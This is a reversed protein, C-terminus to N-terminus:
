VALVEEAQRDPGWGARALGGQPGGLGGERGARGSVRVRGGARRASAGEPVRLRAAVAGQAGATVRRAMGMATDKRHMGLWEDGRRRGAWARPASKKWTPRPSGSSPPRPCVGRLPDLIPRAEVATRTRRARAHRHRREHRPPGGALNHWGLPQWRGNGCKEDHGVTSLPLSQLNSSDGGAEARSVRHDYVSGASVGSGAGTNGTATGSPDTRPERAGRAESM